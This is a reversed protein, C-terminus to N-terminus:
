PKTTKHSLKSILIELGVSNVGQELLKARADSLVDSDLSGIIDDELNKFALRRAAELVDSVVFVGRTPLISVLQPKLLREWMNLLFVEWAQTKLARSDTVTPGDGAPLSGTTSPEMQKALGSLFRQVQPHDLYALAAPLDELFYAVLASFVRSSTSQHLFKTLIRSARPNLFWDTLTFEPKQPVKPHLQRQRKPEDSNEEDNGERKSDAAPEEASRKALNMFAGEVAELVPERLESLRVEMPKLSTPSPLKLLRMYYPPLYRSLEASDELLQLLVLQGYPDVIIERVNALLPQLVGERLLRTDDVTCLLRLVFVCDVANKAMSVVHKKLEKVLTKRQKATAFGSLTTM